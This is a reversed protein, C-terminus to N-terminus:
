YLGKLGSYMTQQTYLQFSNELQMVPVSPELMKFNADFIMLHECYYDGDYEILEKSEKECSSCLYIM